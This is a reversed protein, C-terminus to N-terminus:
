SPLSQKQVELKLIASTNQEEIADQLFNGIGVMPVPERSPLHVIKGKIIQNKQSAKKNKLAILHDLYAIKEFFRSAIKCVFKQTTWKHQM